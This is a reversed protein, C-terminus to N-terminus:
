PVDCYSGVCVVGDKERTETLGDWQECDSLNKVSHGIGEVGLTARATWMKLCVGHSCFSIEFSCFVALM